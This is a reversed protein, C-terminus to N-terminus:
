CGLNELIIVDSGNKQLLGITLRNIKSMVADMVCGPFFAVTMKKQENANYTSGFKYRKRPSELEPLIAEMQALPEYLKNMIKTKRVVKDLKLSQYLWTVNGLMRLRNKYPFVQNLVFNLTRNSFDRKTDEENKAIVETAAEYIEGYPVGVPCAVECARCDLCLDL